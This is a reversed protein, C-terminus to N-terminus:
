FYQAIGAAFTTIGVAVSAYNILSLDLGRSKLWMNWATSTATMGAGTAMTDGGSAFYGIAGGITPAALGFATDLITEITEDM